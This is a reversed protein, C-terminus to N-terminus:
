EQWIGITPGKLFISGEVSEDTEQFEPVFANVLYHMSYHHNDEERIEYDQECRTLVLKISERYGEELDTAFEVLEPSFMM